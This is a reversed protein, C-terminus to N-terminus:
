EIILKFTREGIRVFYVGAPLSSVDVTRTWEKAKISEDCGTMILQGYINFLELKV